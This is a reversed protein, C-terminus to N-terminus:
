METQQKIFPKAERYVRAAKWITCLTFFIVFTILTTQFHIWKVRTLGYLIIGVLTLRGVFGILTLAVSITRFRTVVRSFFFASALYYLLALAIGVTIGLLFPDM